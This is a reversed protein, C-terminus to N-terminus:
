ESGVLEIGIWVRQRNARDPSRGEHFGARRMRQAMVRSSEPKEGVAARHANWNGLVLDKATSVKMDRSRVTKENIWQEFLDQEVFYSGTAEQVREPLILGNQQWDLCGEIAWQLIQPAEARLQEALRPDVVKPKVDFPVVCFRRRMAQDVVELNPAHNGVFVLKFTLQYTFFDQRMFRATIPDGGSLSKIRATAWKRGTETENATVLRAGVLMALDTPHKDFSSSVFSDMPAIRAYGGLITQITNVYTSKGTGGDGYIFFVRQERIDGTLSYGAIQKLFRVTEEDGGTAEHLFALWRTPTGEAPAVLTSKSIHDEPRSPTLKGTRLDVTGAPTGLLMPDADFQKNTRAFIRAARCYGEVARTKRLEQLNPDGYCRCHMRISDQLLGTEDPEWIVGNWSLWQGRTANFLFKGDNAREFDRAVADETPEGGTPPMEFDPSHQENWSHAM